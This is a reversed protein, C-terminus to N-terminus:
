ARLASLGRSTQSKVTGVSIGLIEATQEASYDFYFRLILVARQRPGLSALLAALSTRDHVREVAAEPQDPLTEAARERRWPRRREDLWTRTLVKQAYADPNDAHRVARWHRYLKTIAMSVLDDATHWDSCLLYASRRWREMRQEVFEHFERDDARSM